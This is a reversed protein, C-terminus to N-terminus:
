KFLWSIPVLLNVLTIFLLIKRSITEMYFIHPNIVKGLFIAEMYGVEGDDILTNM